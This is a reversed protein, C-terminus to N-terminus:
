RTAQHQTHSPLLTRCTKICAVRGRTVLLEDMHLLSGEEEEATVHNVFVQDPHFGCPEGM